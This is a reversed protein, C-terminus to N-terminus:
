ENVDGDKYPEYAERVRWLEEEAKQKMIQVISSAPPDFMIKVQLYIYTRVSSLISSISIDKNIPPDNIVKSWTTDATIIGQDKKIAGVQALPLLATDILGLIQDNFDTGVMPGLSRLIDDLVKTDEYM